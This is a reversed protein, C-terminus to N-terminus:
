FINKEDINTPPLRFDIEGDIIIIPLWPLIRNENIITMPLRVFIGTVEMSQRNFHFEWSRFSNNLSRPVFKM